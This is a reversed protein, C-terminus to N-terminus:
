YAALPLQRCFQVLGDSLADALGQYSPEALPIRTQFRGQLPPNDGAGSLQWRIDLQAGQTFNGDLSRVDLQLSRDASSAQPELHGVARWGPNLRELDEGVVRQLSTELSEAWQDFKALTVRTGSRTVIQPRDLFEPLLVPGIRVVGQNEYSSINAPSEARATLLYNSTEASKGGLSVCGALLLPILCTALKRMMLGRM